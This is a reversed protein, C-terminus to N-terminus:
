DDYCECMKQICVTVIAYVLRPAYHFNTFLQKKVFETKKGACRSLLGGGLYLVGIKKRGRLEPSHSPQKKPTNCTLQELVTGTVESSVATKLAQTSEVHFKKKLAMETLFWIWSPRLLGWFIRKQHQKPTIARIGFDSAPPPPTALHLTEEHCDITDNGISLTTPSTPATASASASFVFLM